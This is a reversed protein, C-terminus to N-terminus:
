SGKLLLNRPGIGGSLRTQARTRAQLGTCCSTSPGQLNSSCPCRHWQLSLKANEKTADGRFNSVTMMDKATVPTCQQGRNM